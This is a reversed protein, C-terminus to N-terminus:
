HSKDNPCKEELLLDELIEEVVAEIETDDDDSLSVMGIKGSGTLVVLLGDDSAILDVTRSSWSNERQLESIISGLIPPYAEAELFFAASKGSRSVLAIWVGDMDRVLRAKHRPVSAALAHDNLRHAEDKKTM